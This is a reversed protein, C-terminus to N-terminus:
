EKVEKVEITCKEDLLKYMEQYDWMINKGKHKKAKRGYCDEYTFGLLQALMFDLFKNPSNVFSPLEDFVKKSLTISRQTKYIQSTDKGLTPKMHKKMMELIEKAEEETYTM